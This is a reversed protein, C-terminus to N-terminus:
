GERHRILLSLLGIVATMVWIVGFLQTPEWVLDILPSWAPYHEFYADDTLQEVQSGDPRMRYLNLHGDRWSAFAIWRGDPSWTPAFDDAVAETLQELRGSTLELRYINSYDDQRAGFAIWKGDPSWTVPYPDAFTIGEVDIKTSTRDVLKYQYLYQIEDDGETSFYFISTGDASISAGRDNGETSILTSVEGNALSLKFIDYSNAERVFATFLLWDGDPSIAPFSATLPSLDTMSTHAGDELNLRAISVASGNESVYYINNGNPSWFPTLEVTPFDSLQEVTNGIQRYIDWSGARDSAYALWTAGSPQRRILPMLLIIGALLLIFITLVRRVARM